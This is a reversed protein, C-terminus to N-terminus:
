VALVTPMSKRDVRGSFNSREGRQALQTHSSAILWIGPVAFAVVGPLAVFALVARAFM